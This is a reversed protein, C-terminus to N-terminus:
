CATSESTLSKEAERELGRGPGAARATETRYQWCPGSDTGTKFDSWGSKGTYFFISHKFLREM